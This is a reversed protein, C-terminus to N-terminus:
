RFLRRCRGHESLNVVRVTRRGGVSPGQVGPVARGRLEFPPVSPSVPRRRASPPVAAPACLRPSPGGAPPSAQDEVLNCVGMWSDGITEVQKRWPVVARAARGAGAGAVDFAIALTARPVPAGHAPCKMRACARSLACASSVPGAAMGCAMQLAPPSTQSQPPPLGNLSGGGNATPVPPSPSSPRPQRFLSAKFVGMKVSLADFQFYLRDLM